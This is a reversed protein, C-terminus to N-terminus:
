LIEVKGQGCGRCEVFQFRPKLWDVCGYAVSRANYEGKVPFVALLVLVGVREVQAVLPRQGSAVIHLHVDGQALLEDM